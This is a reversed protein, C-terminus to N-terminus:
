PLNTRPLSIRLSPYYTLVRRTTSRLLLVYGTCAAIYTHVQPPASWCSSHSSFCRGQVAWEHCGFDCVHCNLIFETAEPAGKFTLGNYRAGVM